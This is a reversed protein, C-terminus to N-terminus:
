LEQGRGSKNIAEVVILIVKRDHGMLLEVLWYMWWPVSSVAASSDM